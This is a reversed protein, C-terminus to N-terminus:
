GASGREHLEERTWGRDHVDSPGERMREDRRRSGRDFLSLREELSLQTPGMRPPLVRIVDGAPEWEIVDGPGIGYEDAVKKPITVQRKSTVKSM